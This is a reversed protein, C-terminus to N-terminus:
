RATLRMADRGAVQRGDTLDGTLRVETTSPTLDGNAALAARDFHVVLDPRGDGNVDDRAAMLTGNSRRAVPTRGLRVTGDVLQAADISASSLVAVALKGAVQETSRAGSPRVDIAVTLPLVTVQVTGRGVGGDKDTVTLAATYSGARLYRHSAVIPVGQDATTGATPTETGWDAAYSWHMDRVGADSFRSSLTYREGSALTVAAPVGVRPAVNDVTVRAAYESEAGDKDRVRARLERVGNDEAACSASASRGFAGYGAGCDFAYEFGARQDVSSADVADAISLAVMAGENVWGPAALRAAPAANSVEVVASSADVAGKTDTATLTVTYQGNDAYAHVAEAGTVEPSGDGFSWSYSVADGDADTASGAFAVPAGEVGAYPGGVSAAPSRNVAAGVCPSRLTTYADAGNPVYCLAQGALPLIDFYRATRVFPGRESSIAATLSARVEGVSQYGMQVANSGELLQVQFTSRADTPSGYLAMNNWTIVLRRHPERGLLAYHVNDASGVTPLWDGAMPAALAASDQPISGGMSRNCYNFTVRGNSGPYVSTYERGYFTFSFGLPVAACDDDGLNRNTGLTPEWRPLLPAGSVDGLSTAGAPAVAVSPRSLAVHGFRALYDARSMFSDGPAPTKSPNAAASPPAPKAADPALTSEADNCASM